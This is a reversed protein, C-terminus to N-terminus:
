IKWNEGEIAFRFLSRGIGNPDLCEGESEEMLPLEADFFLGLVFSRALEFCPVNRDIERAKLVLTEGQGDVSPLFVDRIAFTQSRIPAEIRCSCLREQEWQFTLEGICFLAPCMSQRAQVTPIGTGNALDAFPEALPHDSTSEHLACCASFKPRQRTFLESARVMQEQLSFMASTEEDLDPYYYLRFVSQLTQEHWTSDQEKLSFVGAREKPWFYWGLDGSWDYGMYRFVSREHADDRRQIHLVLEEIESRANITTM